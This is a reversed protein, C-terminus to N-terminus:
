VGVAAAVLWATLLVVGAMLVTEFTTSRRLRDSGDHGEPETTNALSPVLRLHNYAGIAGVVAVVAVKGLLLLGWTTEWLQDFRDLITLTLIVGAIGVVAVSAAAVVSYRAGLIAADLPRGHRRRHRLLVGLTVVGGVWVAAAVLHAIDATLVLWRPEVTNSHGALIHGAGLVLLGAGALWAWQLRPRAGALVLVAGLAQLGLVWRTTGTLSAGIAEASVAATPEGQSVLVARAMVRVVLALLVLVASRRMVRAVVPRDVRDRGTLVWTGLVLAGAAVLGGWLAAASALRTVWEAIASRSEEESDESEESASTTSGDDTEGDSGPTPQGESTAVGDSVGDTRVTFTFDGSLPHGDEAAVTWEGTYTGAELPERPEATWEVGERAASVELPVGGEPGELSVGDGLQTVPLTFTLTVEDVPEGVSAGDAPTTSELDTHALAPAAVASVLAVALSLAVILLRASPIWGRRAALTLVPSYMTPPEKAFM